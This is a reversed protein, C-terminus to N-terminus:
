GREATSAEAWATVRLKPIEKEVNYSVFADTKKKKARTERKKKARSVLALFRINKRATWQTGKDKETTMKKEEGRTNLQPHQNHENICRLFVNHKIDHYM